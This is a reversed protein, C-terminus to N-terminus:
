SSRDGSFRPQTSALWDGVIAAVEAPSHSVLDHVAGPMPRVLAQPVAAQFRAIAAAAVPELEADAPATLLLTSIGTAALAAYTEVVPEQLNGHRIAGGVEPELIPVVRGDHERMTAAHATALAPNWRRLADRQFSVFAEWSAFSDDKAELRAEAICTELEANGDVGPVDRGDLYGGDILVLGATLEPFRAGFACAIRAGWSFGVFTIRSIGLASLLEVALGALASPRYAAPPLPPSRGHGPADPAIVRLGYREVLTPAIENAHLGTGGLGDWYLLAPAEPTGWEYVFLTADAVDILEAKM